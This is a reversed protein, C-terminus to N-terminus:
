NGGYYRDLFSNIMLNLYEYNRIKKRYRVPVERNIYYLSGFIAGNSDTDGGKKIVDELSENNLLSKITIALSNVITGMSEELIHQHYLYDNWKDVTKTSITSSLYIEDYMEKYINISDIMVPRTSHTLKLLEIIQEPKLVVALWIRLLGGNGMYTRTDKHFNSIISDRTAGGIDFLGDVTYKGNQYFAILNQKHKEINFFGNEYSDMLSLTLSTDDSWTGSPKNWVGIDGNFKKFYRQCYSKDQFEYPVGWVDGLIFGWISNELNKRKM